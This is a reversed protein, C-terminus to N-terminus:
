EEVQLIEKVEVMVKEKVMKDVEVVEEAWFVEVMDSDVVVVM